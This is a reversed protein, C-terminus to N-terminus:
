EKRQKMLHSFPHITDCLEALKTPSVHTYKETSSLTKHGLLEQVVRLDTGQNLMHTAFSHRLKHPTLPRKINLFTRFMECIRQVSRTSLALDRNNLFLKENKDKVPVREKKLYRLLKEKAKGGFLAMRERRGKGMIRITKEKM